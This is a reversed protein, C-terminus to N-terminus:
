MRRAQAERRRQALAESFSVNGGRRRNAIADEVSTTFNSRASQARREAIAIAIPDDGAKKFEEQVKEEELKIQQSRRAEFAAKFDNETPTPQNKIEEPVEDVLDLPNTTEDVPADVTTSEEGITSEEDTITTEEDVNDLPSIEVKSLEERLYRKLDEDQLSEDFSIGEQTALSKLQSLTRFNLGMPNYKNAM